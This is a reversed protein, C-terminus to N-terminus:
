NFVGAHPSHRAAKTPRRCQLLLCSLGVDRTSTLGQHGWGNDLQWAKAEDTAAYWHLQQTTQAFHYNCCGCKQSNFCDCRLCFHCPNPSSTSKSQPSSGFYVFFDGRQKWEHLLYFVELSTPALTELWINLLFSLGVIRHIFRVDGPRGM